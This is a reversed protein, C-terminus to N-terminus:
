YTGVLPQSFHINVLTEADPEQNDSLTVSFRKLYRQVLNRLFDQVYGEQVAEAYGPKESLLFEKQAGKFAGPHPM